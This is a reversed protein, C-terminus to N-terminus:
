RVRFPGSQRSPRAMRPSEKSSVGCGQVCKAKTNSTLRSSTELSTWGGRQKTRRAMLVVTKAQCSAFADRRKSSRPESSASATAKPTVARATELGKVAAWERLWHSCWIHCVLCHREYILKGNRGSM